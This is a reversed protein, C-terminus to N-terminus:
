NSNIVRKYKFDFDNM